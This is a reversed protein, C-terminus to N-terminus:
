RPCSPCGPDLCHHHLLLALGFQGNVEAVFRKCDQCVPLSCVIAAEKLSQGPRAAWLQNLKIKYARERMIRQRERQRQKITEDTREEVSLLMVQELLDDHPEDPIHLESELFLHKHVFYAILQKEAHSANFQGPIGQDRKDPEMTLGLCASLQFVQPTWDRGDVQIAESLSPSWASVASVEALGQGRYLRAVTMPEDHLDYQTTSSLLGSEVHVPRFDFGGLEPDSPEEAGDTLLQVIRERDRNRAYAKEKSVPEFSSSGRISIPRWRSQANEEPTRACHVALLLRERDICPLTKDAGYRLLTEVNQLRGWSVAEILPTRGNLDAANVDAGKALLLDVMEPCAECAAMHLATKGHTGVAGERVDTDGTEMDNDCWSDVGHLFINSDASTEIYRRVYQVNGLVLKAAATGITKATFGEFLEEIETASTWKPRRQVQERFQHRLREVREKDSVGINRASALAEYEGAVFRVNKKDIVYGVPFRINYELQQGRVGGDRNPGCHSVRRNDDTYRGDFGHRHLEGCRPCRICVNGNDWWQARATSEQNETAM